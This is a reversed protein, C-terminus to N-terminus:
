TSDNVSGITAMSPRRIPFPEPFTRHRVPSRRRPLIRVGSRVLAVASTGGVILAAATEVAHVGLGSALAAHVPM